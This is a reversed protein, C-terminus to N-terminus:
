LLSPIDRMGRLIRYVDIYKGEEDVMYFLLYQYPLAMYRIDDFGPYVPYMFPHETVSQIQKSIKDTLKDVAPPSLEFLYDEAEILDAEFSPLYKVRYV